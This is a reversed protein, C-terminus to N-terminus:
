VIKTRKKATLETGKRRAAGLIQSLTAGKNSKGHKPACIQFIRIEQNCHEEAARGGLISIPPSYRDGSRRGKPRPETPLTPPTAFSAIACGPLCPIIWQPRPWYTQWSRWYKPNHFDPHRLHCRRGATPSQDSALFRSYPQWGKVHRRRLLLSPFLQQCHLIGWAAHSFFFPIWSMNALALSRPTSCRINRGCATLHRKQRPRAVHVYQRGALFRRPARPRSPCARVECFPRM